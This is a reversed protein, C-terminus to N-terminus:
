KKGKGASKGGKGAKSGKSGKTGKTGTGMDSEMQLEFYVRVRTSGCRGCPETNVYLTEDLSIPKRDGQPPLSRLRKCRACFAHARVTL